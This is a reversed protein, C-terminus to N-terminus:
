VGGPVGVRALGHTLGGLARQHVIGRRRTHGAQGLLMRAYALSREVGAALHHRHHHLREVAVKLLVGLAGGVHHEAEAGLDVLVTLDDIEGVLTAVLEHELVLVHGVLCEAYQRERAAAVLGLRRIEGSLGEFVVEHEAAEGAHDVGLAGLHGRGDLLRVVGADAGNHDRAVVDVGGHGDGLVEADDLTALLGDGTGLQILHGVLLQVGGHLLVTHVCAHLRLM